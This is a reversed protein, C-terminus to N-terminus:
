TTEKWSWPRLLLSFRLRLFDRRAMKRDQWYAMLFCLRDRETLPLGQASFKAMSRCLRRANSSRFSQPFKSKFCSKDWDIVYLKDPRATDALINKLNLDGHYCGKDHMFRILGAAKRLLERKARLFEQPSQRHRDALYSALDACGPIEKSILYCRYLPGAVRISVAALMEATAIGSEAAHAALALERFPRAQGIFLDPNLFRILGGRLFKRIIMQQGPLGEIPMAPAAGRGRHVHANSASALHDPQAIGQQLLADAYEEKVVLTAAGAQILRYGQPTSCSNM